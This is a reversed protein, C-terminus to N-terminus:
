RLILPLTSAPPAAAAAAAENAPKTEAFTSGNLEQGDGSGARGDAELM